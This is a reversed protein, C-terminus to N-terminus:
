WFCACLFLFDMCLLLASVLDDLYFLLMHNVELYWANRFVYFHPRTLRALFVTSTMRVPDLDTEPTVDRLDTIIVKEPHMATCQQLAEGWGIAPRRSRRIPLAFTPDMAKALHEFM